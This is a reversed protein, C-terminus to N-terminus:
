KANKEMELKSIKIQLKMTQKINLLLAIDFGLVLGFLLGLGTFLLEM